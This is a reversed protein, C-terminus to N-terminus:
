MFLLATRITIAQWRAGGAPKAKQITTMAPNMTRKFLRGM